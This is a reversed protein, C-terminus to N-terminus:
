APSIIKEMRYLLANFEFPKEIRDQFELTEGNRTMGHVEGIDQGFATLAIIPVSSIESNERIERCVEFGNKFPMFFDLLILDPKEKEAMRVGQEGDAAHCATYGHSQLVRMLASAVDRDDDIILIKKASM